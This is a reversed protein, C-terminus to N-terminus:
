KLTMIYKVMTEADEQSVGPHALMPISGWNGSGGKIIKGALTPIIDPVQSAYKGAIAKYSPGTQVEDVRHCTVCDSKAVLALGAEYDPNSAPTATQETKTEGTDKKPDNNCAVIIALLGLSLVVKKM